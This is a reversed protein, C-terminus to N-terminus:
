AGFGRLPAGFACPKVAIREASACDGMGSLAGSGDACCVWLKQRPVLFQLM